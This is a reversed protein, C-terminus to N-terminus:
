FIHNVCSRCLPLGRFIWKPQRNELRWVLAALLILQIFIIFGTYICLSEMQHKCLIQLLTPLWQLACCQQPLFMLKDGTVFFCCFYVFFLFLHSPFDGALWHSFFAPATLRVSPHTHRARSLEVLIVSVSIYGSLSLSDSHQSDSQLYMKTKNCSGMLSLSISETPQDGVLVIWSPSLM